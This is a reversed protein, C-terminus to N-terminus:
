KFSRVREAPSKIDTIRVGYNEDIVVVEGRAILKGNILVDVQEGALKDLELVSGPGLSLVDKIQRRTRGLEVTVQLSVDMLLDINRPEERRPQPALDPMPAALYAAAAAAVDSVPNGVTPTPARGSAAMAAGDPPVPAPASAVAPDAVTAAGEKPPQAAQPLRRAAQFLRAAGAQPLLIQLRGTEEGVTLAIEALLITLAPSGVVEVLSPAQRIEVPTATVEDETLDCLHPLLAVTLLDLAEAVAGLVNEDAAGGQSEAQLLVLLRAALPEPLAYVLMCGMAGQLATQALVAQAPLLEQAKEVTLLRLRQLNSECATGLLDALATAGDAAARSLWPELRRLDAEAAGHEKSSALGTVLADIEAQSIPTQPM